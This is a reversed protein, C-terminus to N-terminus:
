ENTIEKNEDVANIADIATIVAKNQTAEAYTQYKSIEYPSLGYVNEWIYENPFGAAKLGAAETNMEEVTVSYPKAWIPRITGTQADLLLGTEGGGAIAMKIAMDAIDVWSQTYNRIIRNCKNIIPSEMRKLSEGTPPTTTPSYIHMPIKSKRAIKEVYVKGTSHLNESSAGEIRWFKAAPDTMSLGRGPSLIFEDLNFGAAVAIPFGHLRDVAITDVLNSNIADQLSFLQNIIAGGPTSFEIVPIGLPNGNQDVFPIPWPDSPNEKYKRWGAEQFQGLGSAMTGDMIYKEKRDPYYITLYHTTKVSPVGRNDSIVKDDVYRHSAFEPQGYKDKHLQVGIIADNELTAMEQIQFRVGDIGVKIPNGNQDVSTDYDVIIYCKGDRLAAEYIDDQTSDMKNNQMITQVAQELKQSETQTQTDTQTQDSPHSAEWGTISLRELTLEITDRVINDSPELDDSKLGIYERQTESLRKPLENYYYDRIKQIQEFEAKKGSITANTFSFTIPNIQNDYM